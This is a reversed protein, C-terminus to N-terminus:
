QGEAGGQMGCGGEASLVACVWDYTGRPIVTM